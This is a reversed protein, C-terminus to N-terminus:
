MLTYRQTLPFLCHSSKFIESIGSGYPFLPAPIKSVNRILEGVMGNWTGNEDTGGYKGDKVPIIQYEFGVIDALQKAVDACYGEFKENGKLEKGDEDTEKIM